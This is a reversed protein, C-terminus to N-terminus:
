TSYYQDAFIILPRNAYIHHNLFLPLCIKIYVTANLNLMALSPTVSYHDVCMEERLVRRAEFRRQEERDLAPTYILCAANSTAIITKNAPKVQLNGDGHRIYYHKNFIIDLKM